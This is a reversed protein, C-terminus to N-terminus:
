RGERRWAALLAGVVVLVVLGAPLLSAETVGTVVYDGNARLGIWNRGTQDRDPRTRRVDIEGDALWHIGGGSASAAPEMPTGTTRVDALEPPNVAGVVALATREGDDIRYIGPETALLSATALGNGDEVLDVGRVADSPSTLEVSRPDPELSRREITIRNGEVKARLDNEELEPEKMLWHALRRLLEAQPGGGEYGRSWLWLQDSAIQAVRGEGVRNLIMLPRSDVGEMVVSGQLPTVDVQRFWRGWGPEAGAPAGPPVDGPLGSTVPHRHGLETVTPKFPREIVEGTPEGPLVAGLPTRYLSMSTAFSAGGAELLAGGNEVYSAINSLYLQPLVGRRRYRDFIILDFEDLKIEFLERIPFAILSLERIPTGDQKEPPRLITFHVLDVGPDAKLLNRWTREGAHPEGSVLLVRLRDRVGNIVVAARNNALTLEQPASAVEMEFVNQGGHDLTFELPMDRGVPVRFPRPAGGDQRINVVADPSQNGPMDEVRVTVTVPKGVLGFSPAKVVALRRDAEDHEGTLLTHIPGLDGLGKGDGPVDHVQGDTIFVAGAMRRRPLDAMARDLVEFLRTEEIAGGVGGEAGSTRVVRVELDPFRALREQLDILARETRARREGINQSPSEDVVLVAVDKIPQRDEQVLSPNVLTVALAALGLTRWATGRARRILAVLVGLAALVFLPILVLWPLLPSFEIATGGNMVGNM